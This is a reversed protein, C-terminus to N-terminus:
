TKWRDSIKKINGHRQSRTITQSSLLSRATRKWTSIIRKAKTGQMRLSIGTVSPCTESDVGHQLNYAPKLQGNMMHDEKMRMFTADPDTKSYSNRDGCNYIKKTYEKLKEMYGELTEISRQLQSKRRGCGHVFIIGEEKKIAYLKKRIKKLTRLGFKRGNFILRIGYLLELEEVLVAIKECLRKQLKTVAKKWVFTYRNAASEIKTGDIFIHVGSIEGLDKLLATVEALTKKSCQSLHLSIFRAITAHDPAPKGELLYMFNIDRRCSCEIDRSSYIRNMAAYIVIKFLQRPSAQSKKIKGYTQYLDTLEMGEVFVNLLRVPDDNPILVELELPLRFQYHDDNPILVELELPLRFQYNCSCVSYDKHIIKPKPMDQNYVLLREEM